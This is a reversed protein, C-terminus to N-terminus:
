TGAICDRVRRSIEFAPLQYKNAIPERQKCVIPLIGTSVNEKVVSLRIDVPAAPRATDSM